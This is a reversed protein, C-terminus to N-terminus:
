SIACSKRCLLHPHFGRISTFFVTYCNSLSVITSFIHSYIWICLACVTVFFCMHHKYSPFGWEKLFFIFLYIFFSHFPWDFLSSISFYSWTLLGAGLPICEPPGCLPCYRMLSLKPYHWQSDWSSHAHYPQSTSESCSYQPQKLPHKVIVGRPFVALSPFNRHQVLDRLFRM